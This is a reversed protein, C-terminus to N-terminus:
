ILGNRPRRGPRNNGPRMRRMGGCGSCMSSSLGCKSMRWGEGSLNGLLSCRSMMDMDGSM